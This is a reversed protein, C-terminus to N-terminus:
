RRMGQIVQIGLVVVAAIVFGILAFSFSESKRGLILDIDKETLKVEYSCIPCKDDM